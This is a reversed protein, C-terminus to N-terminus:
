WLFKSCTWLSYNWLKIKNKKKNWKRYNRRFNWITSLKLNGGLFVSPLLTLIFRHQTKSKGQKSTFLGMFSPCSILFNVRTFKLKLERLPLPCRVIFLFWKAETPNSGVIEPNSTGDTTSTTSTTSTSDRRPWLINKIKGWTTGTEKYPSVNIPFKNPNNESIFNVLSNIRQNGTQISTSHSEVNM